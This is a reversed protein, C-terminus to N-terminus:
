YIDAYAQNNFEYATTEDDIDFSKIMSDKGAHEKAGNKLDLLKVSGNHEYYVFSEMSGDKIRVFVKSSPNGLAILVSCLLIGKDLSDGMMFTLTDEPSLWFQLPLVADDIENKVFNFAALAATEFDNDYSYAPFLGKIADARAQVRDSRPTVLTPLEAVSIGEKEEIYDRYRSIIALYVQALRELRELRGKEDM